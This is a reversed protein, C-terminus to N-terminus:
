SNLSLLNQKAFNLAATTRSRPGVAGQRATGLCQAHAFNSDFPSVAAPSSSFAPAALGPPLLIARSSSICSNVRLKKLPRGSRLHVPSQTPSLFPLTPPFETKFSTERARERVGDCLLLEQSV